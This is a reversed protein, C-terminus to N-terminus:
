PGNLDDARPMIDDPLGMGDIMISRWTEIVDSKFDSDLQPPTQAIMIGSKLICATLYDSKKFTIGLAGPSVIELNQDKLVQDLKDMEIVIRM